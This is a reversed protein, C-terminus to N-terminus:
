INETSDTNDTTSYKGQHSVASPQHSLAEEPDGEWKFFMVALPPLTLSISNYKGHITIPASEVGGLNGYGSGGYERADSNMLEKWFGAREVGFRYN